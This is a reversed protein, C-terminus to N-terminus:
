SQADDLFVLAQRHSIVAELGRLVEPDVATGVLDRMRAVALDPPMREQYPRATTLADYIEVAGIIRAGFPIAEGALRDPTRRAGPRIPRPDSSRRTPFSHLRM